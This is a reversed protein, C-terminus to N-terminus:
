EALKGGIWGGAAGLVVTVGLSILGGVAVLAAVMAGFGGGEISAFGMAVGGVAFLGVVLFPASMLVGSAAGVSMTRESDGRELYGAVGGGLIPSLPVFSTVASVVAGLLAHALYDSTQEGAMARNRVRRRHVIYAGGLIAMALGTLVLGAALWPLLSLTLEVFEPETMGEVQFEDAAVAAEIRERDAVIFVFVGALAFLLGGVTVLGGLLWDLWSPLEPTTPSDSEINESTDPNTPTRETPPDNATPPTM